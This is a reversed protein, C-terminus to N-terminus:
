ATKGTLTVISDTIKLHNSLQALFLGAIVISMGAFGRITLKENMLIFSFLATFVPICNTFVNARSVGINRVAYAFLIFAGCSAFIALELVPKIKLITLHINIIKNFDFILFLPLFLIAGIINQMFVIFGPSYDGVLKSLTINYGVASFVALLLLLLGKINFLLSGNSNLVFVLVGVFSLFIGSYNIIRLKEKLLLWAGLSVFVPITSIIVSGVTASVYTLGFSEGIFYIFPEFISLMLFLKRDSKPIRKFKGTIALYITMLIVAISLRTFVITIPSFYENAKKFWIFSLSWFIMSFV